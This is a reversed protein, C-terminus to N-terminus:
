LLDRWDTGDSIRLRVGSGDNFVQVAPEGTSSEGFNGVAILGGDAALNTYSSSDNTAISQEFVTSGTAADFAVVTVAGTSGKDMVYVVGNQYGVSVETFSQDTTEWILSGDTADHARIDSDGTFVRNDAADVVYSQNGVDSSPITTTTTGDQTDVVLVDGVGDTIAATTGDAAIPSGDDDVTWINAGDSPDFAEVPGTDGFNLLVANDAMASHTVGSFPDSLSRLVSGDAIDFVYGVNDDAGGMGAVAYNSNAAFTTPNDGAAWGSNSWKTDGSASYAWVKDANQGRGGVFDADAVITLDRAPDDLLSEDAWELALGSAEQPGLPRAWFNGKDGPTPETEQYTAGQSAAALTQGDIFLNQGV